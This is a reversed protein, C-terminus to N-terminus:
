LRCCYSSRNLQGLRIRSHLIQGFVRDMRPSSATFTAPTDRATVEATTPLSGFAGATLGYRHRVLVSRWLRADLNAVRGCLRHQWCQFFTSQRWRGCRSESPLSIRQLHQQDDRRRESGCLCERGFSSGAGGPDGCIRDNREMDACRHVLPRHLGGCRRSHRQEIM